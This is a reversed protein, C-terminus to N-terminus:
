ILLLQVLGCVPIKAILPQDIESRGDKESCVCDPIDWQAGVASRIGSDRLQNKRASFGRDVSGGGPGPGRDRFHRNTEKADILKSM